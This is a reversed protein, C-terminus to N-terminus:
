AADKAFYAAGSAVRRPATREDGVPGDAGRGAPPSVPMSAEQGHSLKVARGGPSASPRADGHTLAVAFIPARDGFDEAEHHERPHEPDHSHNREDDAWRAREAATPADPRM